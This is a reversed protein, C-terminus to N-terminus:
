VKKWFWDLSNDVSKKHKTRTEIDDIWLYAFFSIAVLGFDVAVASSLIKAGNIITSAVTTLLISHYVLLVLYIALIVLPIKSNKTEKGLFILLITAALLLVTNFPDATNLIIM